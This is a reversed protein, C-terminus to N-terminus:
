VISLVLMTINGFRLTMFAWVIHNLCVYNSRVLASALVVCCFTEEYLCTVLKVNITMTMMRVVTDM